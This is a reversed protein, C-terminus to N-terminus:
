LYNGNKYKRYLTTSLTTDMFLKSFIAAIADAIHENNALPKGNKDLKFIKSYDPNDHLLHSIKDIVDKKTVKHKPNPDVWRKIDMPRVTILELATDCTVVSGIVGLCMGYGVSARSSQSGVPLEAFVITNPNEKNIYKSLGKKLQSAIDLDIMNKYKISKNNLTKITTTSIITIGFYYEDKILVISLEGVAIGFNRMSPDLGVIRVKVKDPM